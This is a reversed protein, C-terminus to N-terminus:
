DEVRVWEEHLPVSNLSPLFSIIRCLHTVDCLAREWTTTKCRQFGIFDRTHFYVTASSGQGCRTWVKTYRGGMNAEKKHKLDRGGLAEKLRYMQMGRWRTICPKKNERSQIHFTETNSKPLTILCLSHFLLLFATVNMNKKKKQQFCFCYTLSTWM